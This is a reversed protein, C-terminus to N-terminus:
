EGPLPPYRYSDTLSKISATALLGLVTEVGKQFDGDGFQRIESEAWCSGTYGNDVQINCTGEPAAQDDYIAVSKNDEPRTIPGGICKWSEPIHDSM